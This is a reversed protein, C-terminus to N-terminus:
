RSPVLVANVGLKRLKVAAQEAQAKNKFPGLQVRTEVRAKIGAKDLKRQLAQANAASTFVGAQVLFNGAEPVTASDQPRPRAPSAAPDPENVVVPPPPLASPPEAPTTPDTATASTPSETSPQPPVILAQAPEHPAAPPAPRVRYREVLMLASLAIAILVASIILRNRTPAQPSAAPPAKEPTSM